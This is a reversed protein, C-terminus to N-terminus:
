YSQLSHLTMFSYLACTLVISVLFDSELPKCTRYASDLIQNVRLLWWKMMNKHDSLTKAELEKQASAEHNSSIAAENGAQNEEGRVSDATEM